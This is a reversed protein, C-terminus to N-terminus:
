KTREVPSNASNRDKKTAWHAVWTIFLFIVFSAIIDVLFHMGLVVTAAILFLNLIIMPWLIWKIHRFAYTNLLAWIVHCSPFVILGCSIYNFQRYTHLLYFRNICTYCTDDFHYSTFVSAPPLSPWIYYIMAAIFIALLSAAIWQRMEKYRKLLGLIPAVLGLQITWSDYGWNLLKHLIVHKDAWKIIALQHFGLALDWNLLQYNLLNDSPTLLAAGCILFMTYVFLITYLLSIFFSSIYHYKKRLNLFSIYLLLFGAAGAPPFLLINSIASYKIYLMNVIIIVAATIYNVFFFLWIIKDSRDLQNYASRISSNIDPVQCFFNYLRRGAAKLKHKM